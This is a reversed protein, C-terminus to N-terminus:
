KLKLPLVLYRVGNDSEQPLEGAAINVQISPLLLKPANLGSDRKTRMDVFDKRSISSNLQINGLKQARVTSMYMLERGKPQYDHGVFVKTSDPLKFIKDNISTYLLDASGSPFDCRGTGFDPMFITDGVFLMDKILFSMCSPTHGPTAIAKIEISGFNLVDGDQALIDFQSGDVKLTNLNFIPKFVKQVEKIGESILIKCDCFRKKLEAAASIHDAHAHTEIIAHVNLKNESTYKLIENISEFSITGSANNFNLVPDIIIADKSEDDYVIYTLTFTEKDFLTQVQYKM